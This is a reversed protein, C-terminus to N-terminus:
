CHCNEVWGGKSHFRYNDMQGRDSNCEESENTKRCALLAAVLGNSTLGLILVCLPFDFISVQRLFNFLRMLNVMRHVLMSVVFSSPDFGIRMMYGHVQKCLEKVAHDVYASLVGSFTFKNLWIGSKLLDLFLTFGREKNGGQLIYRIIHELGHWRFGFRNVAYAWSDGTELNVTTLDFERLLSVIKAKALWSSSITM